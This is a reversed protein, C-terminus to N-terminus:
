DHQRRSIPNQYVLHSIIYPSTTCSTFPVIHIHLFNSFLFIRNLLLHNLSLITCIACVLLPLFPFLECSNWGFYRHLSPSRYYSSESFYSARNIPGQPCMQSICLVYSCVCACSILRSNSSLDHLKMRYRIIEVM